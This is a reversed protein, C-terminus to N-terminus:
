SLFSLDDGEVLCRRCGTLNGDAPWTLEGRWAMGDGAGVKPTSGRPCGLASAATRLFFCGRRMTAGRRHALVDTAVDTRNAASAMSESSSWCCGVGNHGAPAM